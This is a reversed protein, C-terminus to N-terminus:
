VQSLNHSDPRWPLCDSQELTDSCITSSLYHISSRLLSMLRTQLGRHHRLSSAGAHFKSRYSRRGLSPKSRSARESIRAHNAQDQAKGGSGPFSKETAGPVGIRSPTPSSE